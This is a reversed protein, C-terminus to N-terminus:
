ENQEAIAIQSIVFPNSVAMTRKNGRIPLFKMNDSNPCSNLINGYINRRRQENTQYLPPRSKGGSRYSTCIEMKVNKQPSQDVGPLKVQNM